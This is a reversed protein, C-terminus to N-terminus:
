QSLNRSYNLRGPIIPTVRSLYANFKFSSIELLMQLYELM